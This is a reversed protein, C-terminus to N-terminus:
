QLMQRKYLFLTYNPLFLCGGCEAEAGGSLLHCQDEHGTAWVGQSVVWVVGVVTVAQLDLALTHCGIRAASVDVWQSQRSFIHHCHLYTAQHISM